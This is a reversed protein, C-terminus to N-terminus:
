LFKLIFMTAAAEDDIEVFWTTHFIDNVIESRTGWKWGSGVYVTHEIEGHYPGVNEELWTIIKKKASMRPNFMAFERHHLESLVQDTIDIIM